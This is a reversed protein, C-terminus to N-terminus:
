RVPPRTSNVRCGHSRCGSGTWSRRIPASGRALRRFRRDSAWPAWCILCARECGASTSRAVSTVGFMPTGDARAPRAPDPPRRVPGRRGMGRRPPARLRAHRHQPGPGPATSRPRSRAGLAMADETVTCTPARGSRQRAGLRAAAAADGGSRGGRRGTRLLRAAGGSRRRTSCSVSALRGRRGHAPDGGGAGWRWTAHVPPSPVGSRPHQAHREQRRRPLRSRRVPPLGRVRCARVSPRQQHRVPHSGLELRAPRRRRGFMQRARGGPLPPMPYAPDRPTRATLPGEEGSVGIEWEAREYYPALEDYGFPWDASRAERRCATPAPWRSTRPCSGGRWARGSGPARWRADHRQAGM